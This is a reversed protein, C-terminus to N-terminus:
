TSPLGDAQWLAGSHGPWRCGPTMRMPDLMFARWRLDVAPARDGLQELGRRFNTIGIWCFPCVLDSWLDVRM